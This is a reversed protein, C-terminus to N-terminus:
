PKRVKMHYLAFGRHYHGDTSNPQLEVVKDADMLSAKYERL